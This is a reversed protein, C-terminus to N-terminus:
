QRRSASHVLGRLNNPQALTAKGVTVLLIRDVLSGPKGVRAAIQTANYVAGRDVAVGRYYPRQM